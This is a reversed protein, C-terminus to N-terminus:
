NSHCSTIEDPVFFASHLFRKTQLKQPLEQWNADAHALYFIKDLYGLEDSFGGILYIGNSHDEVLVSYHIPIPLAPGTRWESSGEDLIAVTAPIPIDKGGIVIISTEHSNENTRIQGCVHGFRIEKLSPGKHWEQSVSNFVYSNNFYSFSSNTGGIVIVSTSNILAMCHHATAVPLSPTVYQWGDKTLIEATNTSTASEDFTFGGTVFLQHNSDPFPSQTVAADWRLKIEDVKIIFVTIFLLTKIQLWPISYCLYYKKKQLNQFLLM